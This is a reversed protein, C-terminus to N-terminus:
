SSNIFNTSIIEYIEWNIFLIVSAIIFQILDYLQYTDSNPNLSLRKDTKVGFGRDRWQILQFDNKCSHQNKSFGVM